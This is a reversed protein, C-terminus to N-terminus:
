RPSSEVWHVRGSSELDDKLHSSLFNIATDLEPFPSGTQQSIVGQTSRLLNLYAFLMEVKYKHDVKHDLLADSNVMIPVERILRHLEETRAEKELIPLNKRRAENECTLKWADLHRQTVLTSPAPAVWTGIDIWILQLGLRATAANFKADLFRETIEQRPVFNLAVDQTSNEPFSSAALFESLKHGAIFEQLSRRVLGKMVAQWSYRSSRKFVLSKVAEEVYSYPNSTNAQASLSSNRLVSFEIRVNQAVIRIGDRTRGEVSLENAQTVQNRLDIVERLREFGDIINSTKKAGPNQGIFQVEGDLKEFVAVNELHTNVIGPGGIVLLPSNRDNEAVRGDVIDLNHFTFAFAAQRLFRAAIGESDLEFIDALYHFAIWLSVIFPIVYTLVHRFVDASFLGTVLNGLLLVSYIGMGTFGEFLSYLPRSNSFFFLSQVVSGSFGQVYRIEFPHAILALGIWTLLAGWIFILNRLLGGTKTLSFAFKFVGEMSVAIRHRLDQFFQEPSTQTQSSITSM